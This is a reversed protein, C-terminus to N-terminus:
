DIRLWGGGQQNDYTRVQSQGDLRVTVKVDAGSGRVGEIGLVGDVGANVIPGGGTLPDATHSHRTFGYVIQIGERGERRVTLEVVAAGNRDVDEPDADVYLVNEVTIAFNAAGVSARSFPVGSYSDGYLAMTATGSSGAIKVSGQVWQGGEVFSLLLTVNEFDVERVNSILEPFSTPGSVQRFSGDQYSYGRVQKDLASGAQRLVPVQVVGDIVRIGERWDFETREPLVFGLSSVKGGGEIRLALLQYAIWEPGACIIPVLAEYGPKGDIDAVVPRDPSLRLDVDVELEAVGNVFTRNGARCETTGPFAPVEFTANRLDVSPTPPTSRTVSPSPSEATPLPPAVRVVNFAVVVGAIAAVAAVCGAVRNRMTIRNSGRVARDHLDVFKVDESLDTLGQKLMDKM